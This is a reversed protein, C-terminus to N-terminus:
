NLRAHEAKAQKLIPIDPDAERWLMLFEEYKQRSKASDGSMAHARALGLHALAAVPSNRVGGHHQLIKQFEVEAAPGRKAALYAEARVYVPILPSEYAWQYPEAAHLLDIARTTNGTRLEIAARIAPLWYNQILTASPFGTELQDTLQRAESIDGVRALALAAWARVDRGGVQELAAHALHRAAEMSGFEAEHFAAVAQILAAREHAETRAASEMALQSLERAKGLGGFYAESDAEKSLMVDEVGPKGMAWTVEDQMQSLDGELFNALYAWEHFLAQAPNRQLAKRLIAKAEPLRDLCLYAAAMGTEVVPNKPDREDAQRFESIANPYQGLRMYATALREHAVWDRPYNRSWLRGIEIAREIQGTAAFDYQFQIGLKEVASVRDRLLYAKRTNEAGLTTEGLSSYLGGLGVYGLAFNPDIEIAQKLFPIGASRGNQVIIKQANTYAVFADFSATSVDQPTARSFKQISSLSEGLKSRLNSAARDLERLVAEKRSTRMEEDVTEGTLCTLARIGIVYESGLSAISGELVVKSGTRQCLERAVDLSLKQDPNRGMLRLNDAVTLDSLVKLSPSQQLDIALAQKLTYDFVPDGTRNEFDALVLTDRESLVRPSRTTFFAAAVAAVAAAAVLWWKRTDPEPGPPPPSPTEVLLPVEPPASSPRLPGNPVAEVAGIFRYGRKPLTEIFRPNEPSDGLADRLRNVAKNLGRDFDVFTDTGWLQAQLEDRTVVQGPRELLMALVQFSQGRLQIKLGHKRLEGSQLDLDFVGFRIPSQLNGGIAM